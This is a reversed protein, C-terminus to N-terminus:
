FSEHQLAWPDAMRAENGVEQAKGHESVLLADMPAQRHWGSCSWGPYRPPSRSPTCRRCCGEQRLCLLGPRDPQTRSRGASQLSKSPSTCVQYQSHSAFGDPTTALKMLSTIQVSGYMGAQPQCVGSGSQLVPFIHSHQFSAVIGLPSGSCRPFAPPFAPACHINQPFSFKLAWFNCFRGRECDGVQLKLARRNSM